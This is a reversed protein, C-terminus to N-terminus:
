IFIKRALIDALTFAFFSLSVIGNMTFFAANIRSFDRPSVLRHEYILCGAIVVVGAYYLTGLNAINGFAILLLVVIIHCARSILLADAAGLSQPLSFLKQKKDFAIDQLSYIIDFGATWLLVAACLVLPAFAISGTVAIWAGVPAIALALGLVFHSLSTFRKTLSYGLIIMLAIPSLAFALPNLQHAAFIFVAISALMLAWAEWLAVAGRPLERAKTRPNAADIQRDAIRNFAMAASRAGVMALLIYGIVPLSPVGRAAVVAASLAFPLAFLTHEFKIMELLLGIKGPSKKIARSKEM